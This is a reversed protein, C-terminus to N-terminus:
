QAAWTSISLNQAIIKQRNPRQPWLKQMKGLYSSGMNKEGPDISLMKRTRLNGQIIGHCSILESITGGAGLEEMLLRFPANCIMSMPALLLPSSFSIKGLSIKTRRNKLLTVKHSLEPTFKIAM